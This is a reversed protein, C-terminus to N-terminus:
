EALCFSLVILIRGILQAFLVLVRREKEGGWLSLSLVFVVGVPPRDFMLLDQCSGRIVLEAAHEAVM